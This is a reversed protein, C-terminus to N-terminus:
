GGLNCVTLSLNATASQCASLNLTTPESICGIGEGILTYGDAPLQANYEGFENAMLSIAQNPNDIPKALVSAHPIPEDAAHPLGNTIIGSVTGYVSECDEDTSENRSEDTATRDNGSDAQPGTCACVLAFPFASALTRM